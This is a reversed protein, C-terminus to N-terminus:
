SRFHSNYYLRWKADFCEADSAMRHAGKSRKVLKLLQSSDIDVRDFLFGFVKITTMSMKSIYEVLLLLDLDKKYERLKEMVLDISYVSRHFNLTDVLAKEPTAIRANLNDILVEKWGFHYETKTKVFVYELNQLRVTKHMKLSVSIVRNTLQDFMGHYQLAFEFSVYSDGALLNAVAYPSLSLFGRGSLDSIAYLGRKIRVLWGQKTLTTILYETQKRTLFTGVEAFINPTTVIKGHKVILNELLESHEVSLM